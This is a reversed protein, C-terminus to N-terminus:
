QAAASCPLEVTMVTPGGTPSSLRFAGDVSSVRQALGRLGTGGSPDAGGTGDDTVIVRLIGGLRTVAVEARTARAHKAINTLAESVVFYAVAEVAPATREPADVRLRVPFPARAALGSLAPDLGLEDLVSPHLGRVLNNLEEISEKAARHAEEVVEMVDPPLDTRDKWLAKAIGLNLAMAVLHQQAGDHLDREIRRREADAADVAGARSETLDSVRQQLAEAKDDRLLAPAIRQELRVLAAASPPVAFLAAVGAAMSFAAWTTYGHHALRFEAPLLWVWVFVTTAAVALLALVLVALEVLALCPGVLWHYAFQRRAVAFRLRPIEVGCLERFRWRQAETLGYGAVVVLAITIPLVFPASGSSGDLLGIAEITGWVFLPATLLHLPVGAGVFALDRRLRTLARARRSRREPAVRGPLSTLPGPSVRTLLNM